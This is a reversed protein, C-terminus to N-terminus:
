SRQQPPFEIGLELSLPVEGAAETRIAIKTAQRNKGFGAHLGRQSIRQHHKPVAVFRESGILKVAREIRPLARLGPKGTQFLIQPTLRLKVKAKPPM